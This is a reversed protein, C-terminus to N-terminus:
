GQDEPWLTLRPLVAVSITYLTHCSGDRGASVYRELLLETLLFRIKCDSLLSQLHKLRDGTLSKRSLFGIQKSSFELLEQSRDVCSRLAVEVVSSLQPGFQSEQITQSLLHSLTLFDRILFAVDPPTAKFKAWIDCLKSVNKILQILSPNIVSAGRPRIFVSSVSHRHAM